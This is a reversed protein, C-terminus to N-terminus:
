SYCEFNSGIFRGWLYCEFTLKPNMLDLMGIICPLIVVTAQCLGNQFYIISSSSLIMGGCFLCREGSIMLWMLLPYARQAGKVFRHMKVVGSQETFLLNFLPTIQICAFQPDLM